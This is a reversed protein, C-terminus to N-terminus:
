KFTIFKIKLWICLVNKLPVNIIIYAFGKRQLGKQSNQTPQIKNKQRHSVNDQQCTM